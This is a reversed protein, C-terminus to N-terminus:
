NVSVLPFNQGQSDVVPFQAQRKYKMSIEPIEAEVYSLLERISIVGDNPAGDAAGDLGALVAFTFVGHGIDKVEAAFQDSGAAAVIHIGTSRALQRLAKREEFGRFSVLAAGSKCADMLMLVKQAGVKTVEEKIVNASLGKTRIEDEKEPYVVEHPLFYWGDDLSEGHGAFYIVAVDEPNTTRLEALKAMINARTADQNYLEYTRVEKFLGQAKRNMFSAIATADPVGYNLNLAPNRYENVGITLVHLTSTRQPAKLNFKVKIPKSEIGDKGIAVASIVNEGPVLNLAVTKVHQKGQEAKEFVAMRAGGDDIAKGNHFLRIDSVESGQDLAGVAIEVLDEDMDVEQQAHSIFEVKPPLHIAETLKPGPPPTVPEGAVARALLGPEFHTETFQELEMTEEEVEWQIVDNDQDSGDFQGDENIVTWGDDSSIVKALERRRPRDWVRSTGDLSASHLQQGTSGFTVLTVAQDHGEFLELEDGNAVDFVRVTSDGGGVAVYAEDPSLAVSNARGNVAQIDAVRAGKSLDWVRVQGASSGTVLITADNNVDISTVDSSHVEFVGVQEGSEATWVRVTRDAGATLLRTGAPTMAVGTVAGQHGSFRQVESGSAVDWVIASQDNSGSAIRAGDGSFALTLVPGAHGKMRTQLTGGLSWLAITGDDGGTALITGTPDIAVARVEGGHAQVSRVERGMQLDWLRATGDSLGTAMFNADNSLTLTNVNAVRSRDIRMTPVIAQRVAESIADTIGQTVTRTVAPSIITPSVQAEAPRPATAVTTAVMLVACAVLISGKYRRLNPITMQHRRVSLQQARERFIMRNM